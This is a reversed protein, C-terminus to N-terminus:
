ADCSRTVYLWRQLPPGERGDYHQCYSIFVDGGSSRAKRSPYIRTFMDVFSASQLRCQRLDRQLINNEFPKWDQFFRTWAHPSAQAHKLLSFDPWLMAMSCSMVYSCLVRSLLELMDGLFLTMDWHCCGCTWQRLVILMAWSTKKLLVVFAVFPLQM